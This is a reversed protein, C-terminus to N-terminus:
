FVNLLPKIKKLPFLSSYFFCFFFILTKWGMGVLTGQTVASTARSAARARGRGKWNYPSVWNLFCLPLAAILQKCLAAPHSCCASAQRHGCLQTKTVQPHGLDQSLQTEQTTNLFGKGAAGTSTAIAHSTSDCPLAHRYGAKHFSNGDPRTAASCWIGTTAGLQLNQCTTSIPQSTSISNDNQGMALGGCHKQSRTYRHAPHPTPRRLRWAGM